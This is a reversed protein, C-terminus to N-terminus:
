LEGDIADKILEKMSKEHDISLRKLKKWTGVDIKITRSRM